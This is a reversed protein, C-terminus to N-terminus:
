RPEAQSAELAELAIELDRLKARTKELLARQADFEERTVLGQKALQSIFYQRSNRELDAAPSNAIVAGVKAALENLKQIAGSGLPSKNM